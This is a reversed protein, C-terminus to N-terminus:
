RVEMDLVSKLYTCLITTWESTSKRTERLSPLNSNPEQM